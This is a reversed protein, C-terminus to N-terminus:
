QILAAVSLLMNFPRSPKDFQNFTGALYLQKRPAYFAFSGSSGAHGILLIGFIRPVFGSRSVLYGLLLLHLGFLLGWILIVFANADLFLLMLANVQEPAFVSVYGAGGLLLLAAGATFLNVAQLMSQGFRAFAAALAIPKSVPRFLVYLLASVVIEVLVIVTEAAM